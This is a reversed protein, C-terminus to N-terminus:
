AGQTTTNDNNDQFGSVVVLDNGVVAGASEHVNIPYKLSSDGPEEFSSV